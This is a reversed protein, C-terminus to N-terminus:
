FPIDEEDPDETNMTDFQHKIVTDLRNVVKALDELAEDYTKGSGCLTVSPSIVEKSGHGEDVITLSRLSVDTKAKYLKDFSTPKILEVNHFKSALQATSNAEKNGRQRAISSSKPM